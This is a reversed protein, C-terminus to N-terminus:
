QNQRAHNHKLENLERSIAVLAASVSVSDSPQHENCWRAIQNVNNGIAALQRLLAPDAIPIPRRKRQGLALDRLWVALQPQNCRERISSYEDDNLRIKIERKRM